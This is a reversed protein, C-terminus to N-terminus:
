WLGLLKWWLFGVTSWITLNVGSILLGIRWWDKWSVYEHAFFMPAPTTGYHTLGASLNVFTAFSFAVLGIPAGKALLVALFPPYLALIHATISAFGYHAYFYVLLAVAFLIVWSADSLLAAVGRAFAQTVGAHNLERGLCVLGGYWLFIDWMASEKKVEEWTLVGSALLVASGLLAIITIDVGHWFHTIWGLCVFLFVVGMIKEALTLQGMASLEKRAFAAAEPTSRILPPLVRRILIPIVALSIAGPLLGALFWSLPTIPFGAQAAMSAALPNSAQGTFFMAASVCISQYVAAYLFAGLLAATPGPQSGYLETISRLVPLVVGGSRAANSPIIAGLVVDSLALSYSVGLSTRGFHRVFYLAIRRALGTQILSRSIMFAALVLWVSSDAYGSLAQAVTLSKLAASLTLGILVVAGGPIPQLILGAIVSLFIGLLRWGEPKISEPRPAVFVVVVFPLAVLALRQVQSPRILSRAQLEPM